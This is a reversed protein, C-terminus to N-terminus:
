GWRDLLVQTQLSVLWQALNNAVLLVTLMRPLEALSRQVVLAAAVGAAADLAVRLRSTAYLGVELGSCAAAAVLGLVLLLAATMCGEPRLGARRGRRRSPREDRGRAPALRRAAARRRPAAPPGAGRRGSRGGHAGPARAPPHGGRGGAPAAPLRRARHAHRPAAAAPRPAGLAPGRDRGAGRGLAGQPGRGGRCRRARRAPDGAAAGRRAAARRPARCEGVAARPAAGRAPRAPELHGPDAGGDRPGHRAAPRALRRLGPVRRAPARGDDGGLGRAARAPRPVRRR